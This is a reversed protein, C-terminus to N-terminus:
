GAGGMQARLMEGILRLSQEENFGENVLAVYIEYLGSASQRLEASPERIPKDNGFM